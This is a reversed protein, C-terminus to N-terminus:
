QDDRHFLDHFFGHKNEEIAVKVPKDSDSASTTEDKGEHHFFSTKGHDTAAQAPAEGPKGRWIM